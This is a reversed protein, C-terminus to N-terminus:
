RYRATARSTGPAYRGLVLRSVPLYETCRMTPSKGIGHKIKEKQLAKGGEGELRHEIGSQVELRFEGSIPSRNMIENQQRSPEIRPNGRWLAEEDRLINRSRASEDCSSELSFFGNGEGSAGFREPSGIVCNEKAFRKKQRGVDAIVSPQGHRSGHWHLSASGARLM